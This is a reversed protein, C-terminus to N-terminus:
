DLGLAARMEDTLRVHVPVSALEEETLHLQHREGIDRRVDALNDKLVDEVHEINDPGHPRQLWAGRLHCGDLRVMDDDEDIHAFVAIVGLAADGERHAALWSEIEDDSALDAAGAFYDDADSDVAM